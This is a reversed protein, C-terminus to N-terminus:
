LNIDTDYLSFYFYDASDICKSPSYQIVTETNRAKIFGANKLFSEEVSSNAMIQITKAGADLASVFVEAIMELFTKEDECYWDYVNYYPLFHSHVAFNKKGKIMSDLRHSYNEIGEVRWKLFEIDHVIEPQIKKSQCYLINEAAEETSCKSFESESKLIRNKKINFFHKLISGSFGSIFKLKSPLIWSILHSPDLPFFMNRASKVAKFGKSLMLKEAGPSPNNGLTIMDRKMGEELLMHGIGKNRLDPDVILDCTWQADYIHNGYKLKVPILGAQGIVKGDSVALLLGSVDGKEKGRFKWRNYKEVRRRRKGPWVKLSFEEHM